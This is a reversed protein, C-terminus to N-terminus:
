FVMIMIWIPFNMGLNELIPTPRPDIMWPTTVGAKETIEKVFHICSNTLIDYPKRKHFSNQSKRREALTLMAEYKGNVEIFVGQIRGSQSSARSIFSLPKKLSSFDIHGDVVQVNPLNRAKLVIGLKEPQDYRGYEYYKTTGTTGNIFLIGAHGLNSVKEKFAPITFNDVQVWPFVDVETKQIEVTIRYDPFVIPIVFGM